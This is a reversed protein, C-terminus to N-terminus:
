HEQANPDDEDVLWPLPWAVCEKLVQFWGYYNTWWTWRQCWPDHLSVVGVVHRPGAAKRYLNWTRRAHVGLTAVDFSRIGNATAFAVLDRAMSFTRSGRVVTTPVRLMRDAPVGSEVLWHFAQDSFTPQGAMTSGDARHLTIEVPLSHVNTGNLDMGAVFLVPASDPPPSSSRAKLTLTHCAKVDTRVTSISTPVAESLTSRGDLFLQWSAAPLGTTGFQIVGSTPGQFRVVLSDGNALYYTFPRVIGTVYLREYGGGRFLEAAEDVGERHMWGEVVLVNGGSRHTVAFFPHAFLVALLWAVFAALVTRKITRRPSRVSM